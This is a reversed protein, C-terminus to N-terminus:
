GVRALALDHAAHYAHGLRSWDFDWSHKEVENRLNVRERRSM